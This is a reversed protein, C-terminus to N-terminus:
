QKEHGWSGDLVMIDFFHRFVPLGVPLLLESHFRTKPYIMPVYM